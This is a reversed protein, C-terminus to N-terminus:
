DEENEDGDEDVPPVRDTPPTDQEPVAQALAGSEREDLGQRVRLECESKESTELKSCEALAAAKPPPTEQESEPPPAAAVAFSGLLALLTWCHKM